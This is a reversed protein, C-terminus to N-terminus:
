YKYYTYSGKYDMKLNEAKTLNYVKKMKIKVKIKKKGMSSLNTKINKKTYTKIKKGDLYLTFKINNLSSVYYFSYNYVGIDLVLTKGSYYADLLHLVPNGYNLVSTSSEVDKYKMMVIKNKKVTVTCKYKKGNPLKCTITAKGTKKGTVVGKSNVTAVKKNSSSWKAGSLKQCKYVMEPKLTIKFGVAVKATKKLKIKTAAVKKVEITVTKTVDAYNPDDQASITIKVKGAFDKPITVIGTDSVKVSKKNSSYTVTGAKAKAGLDVKQTKTPKGKLTWTKEKTTIKNAAKDITFTVYGYGSYNGRGFVWIYGTGANINSDYYVTYDIGNTLLAGNYYVLIAPTIADGTYTYGSNVYTCSCDLISIGSDLLQIEEDAQFKVLEGDIQVEEAPEAKEEAEAEEEAPEAEEVAEEEAPEAEEVAEEEEAAPEAEEVAEAEEEAPEAEEVAEEEEEVPEAEEEVEAEEEAPEAEEAEAEEAQEDLIVADGDAEDAFVPAQFTALVITLCLLLAFVKKLM